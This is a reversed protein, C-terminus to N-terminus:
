HLIGRHFNKYNTMPATEKEDGNCRHVSSNCRGNVKRCRHSCEHQISGWNDKSTLDATTVHDAFKYRKSRSDPNICETSINQMQVFAGAACSKVSCKLSARNRGLLALTYKYYKGDIKAHFLLGRTNKAKGATKSTISELNFVRVIPM